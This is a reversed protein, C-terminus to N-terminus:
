SAASMSPAPKKDLSLCITKGLRLASIMMWSIAAKIMAAWDLSKMRTIVKPPGM